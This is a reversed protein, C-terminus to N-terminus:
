ARGRFFAILRDRHEPAVHELTDPYFLTVHNVGYVADSALGLHKECEQRIWQPDSYTMPPTVRLVKGSAQSSMCVMGWPNCYCLIPIM